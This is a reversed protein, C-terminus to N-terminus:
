IKLVDFNGELVEAYVNKGQNKEESIRFLARGLDYVRLKNVNVNIPAKINSM